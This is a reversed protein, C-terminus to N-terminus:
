SKICNKTLLKCQEDPLSTSKKLDNRVNTPKECLQELDSVNQLYEDILCNRQHEKQSLRCYTAVYKIIIEAIPFGTLDLYRLKTHRRRLAEIFSHVIDASYKVGLRTRQCIELENHLLQLSSFM